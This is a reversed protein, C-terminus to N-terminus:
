QITESCVWIDVSGATANVVNDGTSVFQAIVSHGAAAMTESKMLDTDQFTTDAAAQFIDFASTYRTPTGTTGVSVTMASLTGGTFAESHKVVAGRIKCFQSCTFLTEDESTDADTLATEDITYKQWCPNGENNAVGTAPTATMTLLEATVTKASGSDHDVFVELYDNTALGVQTHLSIPYAVSATAMNVDQQSDAITTGNRALRVSVTAAADISLSVSVYANFVLTRAGIYRLRGDVPEDFDDPGASLNSYTGALKVYTGAAFPGTAAPTSIYLGAYASDATGGGSAALICEGSQATSFTITVNYTAPAITVTNPEVKAKPVAQDYCQVIIAGHNFGHATGTVTVSTTSTFLTTYNRTNGIGGGALAINAEGAPSETVTFEASFDLVSAPNSISVDSNQVDIASGAGSVLRWEAATDCGGATPECVYLTDADEEYCPEGAAGDTLSTCDTDHRSIKIPNWATRTTGAGADTGDVTVIDAGGATHQSAHTGAAKANFTSWDATSLAGRNSASATPLNFVISNAAHAIAFDTGTTGVGLTKHEQATAGANTGLVQNATGFPLQSLTAAGSLQSFAVQGWAVDTGDSSLYRNAAGIALRTWAPTATQGTILDGRVVTGVATDTHTASLLDHTSAGGLSVWASGNWVKFINSDGSDCAVDGTEPASPLAACLIRAAARTASSTFTQQVGTFVNSRNLVAVNALSVGLESQMARIEATHQNVHHAVINPEVLAGTVHSAPTSGDFGRGTATVAGGALYAGNGNVGTLSFTTTSLVAIANATVNCNTNGTVGTITVRERGTLAHATTTTVVIPTANTCDNATLSSSFVTLDNAAKSQILIIENGVQISSPVILNTADVLSITLATSNHGASLAMQGTVVENSQITAQLETLVSDPYQADNPNQGFLSGAILLVAALLRKL